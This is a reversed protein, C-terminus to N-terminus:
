TIIHYLTGEEYHYYGVVAQPYTQDPLCSQDDGPHIVVEVQVQCVEPGDDGTRNRCMFEPPLTTMANVLVPDQGETAEYPGENM